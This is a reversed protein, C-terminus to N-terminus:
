PSEERDLEDLLALVRNVARKPRRAPPTEAEPDLDLDERDIEGPTSAISARWAQHDAVTLRRSM